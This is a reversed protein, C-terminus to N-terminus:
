EGVRDIMDMFDRAADRDAPDKFAVDLDPARGFMHLLTWLGFRRARDKELGFDVLMREVGADIVDPTTAALDDTGFYRRMQDDFEM